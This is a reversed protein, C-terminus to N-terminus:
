RYIEKVLIEGRIEVGVADLLDALNHGGANGLWPLLGAESLQQFVLLFDDPEVTDSATRWEDLQQALAQLAALAEQTAMMWDDLVKRRSM